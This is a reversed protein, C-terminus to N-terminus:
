NDFEKQRNVAVQIEKHPTKNTKKVFGHLILFINPRFYCFFLRIQIVSKIRLEFLNSYSNIKKVKSTSLLSLSYEELLRIDSKIKLVIKNPFKDIFDLIVERKSLSKYFVIKYKTTKLM